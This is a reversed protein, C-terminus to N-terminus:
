GEIAKRMIKALNNGCKKACHKRYARASAYRTRDYDARGYKSLFDKCIQEGIKKFTKAIAMYQKGNRYKPLRCEITYDHQVNIWNEHTTPYDLDLTQAYGDASGSQGPLHTRNTFDRGFFAAVTSPDLSILYDNIPEFLYQYYEIIHGMTVPNIWRINGYHLHTGCRNDMEVDGADVLKDITTCQKSLANLGEHIPSKYEVDVTCDYTPIFGFNVLEGRAQATSASTELEVSFTGAHNKRKGYWYDNETYYSETDFFHYSCLYGARGGRNPIAIPYIGNATCNNCM